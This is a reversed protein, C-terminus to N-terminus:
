PRAWVPWFRRAAQRWAAEAPPVEGLHALHTRPWYEPPRNIGDEVWERTRNDRNIVSPHTGPLILLPSAAYARIQRTRVLQQYIRDVATTAPTSAALLKRAGALTVAYAAGGQPTWPVVIRRTLREVRHEVDLCRYLFWLEWDAPLDAFARRFRAPWTWAAGKLLIDDELILASPVQRQVIDALVGIHSLVCGIEGAMCAPAFGGLDDALRGERQLAAIGAEGLARGDIAEFRVPEPLRMARILPQLTRWRETSASLNIIHVEAIV